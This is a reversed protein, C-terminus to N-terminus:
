VLHKPIANVIRIFLKGQTQLSQAEVGRGHDVRGLLHATSAGLGNLLEEAFTFGSM